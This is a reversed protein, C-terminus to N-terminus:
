RLAKQAGQPDDGVRRRNGRASIQDTIKTREFGKGYGYGYGDGYGYGYEGGGRRPIGNLVVGYLRGGLGEVREAALRLVDKRTQGFRALLLVGDVHRILTATDAVPLIPPADIVIMDYTERVTDLLNSVADTELVEAPNPPIPGTALFDLGSSHGQIAGSLTVHGLLVSLMGVSNELGLDPAVSPNRLDCDILLVSKGTGALSQALNIATLTKGENALPSTVLFMQGRADLDAFRLNARLVRFAEALPSNPRVNSRRGKSVSSDLPLASVVATGTIDEADARAKVTLDLRDRLFAGMLGVLGSLIIGLAVTLWTPPGVPTLELTPEGAARAVVAAPAKDTPRELDKVLLLLEQVEADALEKAEDPTPGTATIKVIQTEVLVSATIRKGLEPVSVALGTRALVRQLLTPDKALDAYSKARQTVLLTPFAASGTGSPTVIFVRGTSEYAPAKSLALAGSALSGLLLTMAIFKWRVRLVRNFQHLDM